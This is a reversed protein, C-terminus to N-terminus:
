RWRWCSRALFLWVQPLPWCFFHTIGDFSVPGFSQDSFKVPEIFCAEGLSVVDDDYCFLTGAIQVESFGFFFKFLDEDLFPNM